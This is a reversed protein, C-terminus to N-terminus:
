VDDDQGESGTVLFGRLGCWPRDGHLQIRWGDTNLNSSRAVGVRYNVGVVNSLHTEM